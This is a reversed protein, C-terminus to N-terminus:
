LFCFFIQLIKCIKATFNCFNKVTYFTNFPSEKLYAALELNGMYHHHFIAQFNGTSIDIDKIDSVPELRDSDRLGRFPIGLKGMFKLTDILREMVARNRTKLKVSFTESLADVQLEPDEIIREFLFPPPPPPPPFAFRAYCLQTNFLLQAVYAAM